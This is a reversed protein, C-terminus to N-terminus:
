KDYIKVVIKEAMSPFDGPIVLQQNWIPDFTGYQVSSELTKGAFEIKAYPDVLEAPAADQPVPPNVSPNAPPNVPRYAETVLQNNYPSCSNIFICTQEAM